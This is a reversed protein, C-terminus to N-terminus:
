AAEQKPRRDTCRARHLADLRLAANGKPQKTRGQRIESVASTSHGIATAIAELTMGAACLDEVITSWNTEM